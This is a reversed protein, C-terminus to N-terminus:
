MRVLYSRGFGRSAYSASTKRDVITACGIPIRCFLTNPIACPIGSFASNSKAMANWSVQGCNNFLVSYRTKSDAMYYCYDFTASYDGLFLYTKNIYHSRDGLKDNTHEMNYNLFAASIFMNVNVTYRLDLNTKGCSLIYAGNETGPRSGNSICCCNHHEYCSRRYKLLRM